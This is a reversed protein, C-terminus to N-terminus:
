NENSGNGTSSPGRKGRWPRVTISASWVAFTKSNGPDMKTKWTGIRTRGLKSPSEWTECWTPESDVGTRSKKEKKKELGM